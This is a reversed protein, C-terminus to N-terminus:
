LILSLADGDLRYRRGCSPCDFQRGSASELRTHCLCSWGKQGATPGYVLAHASVDHRVVSGTGVFAVSGIHLLQNVSTSPGLWVDDGLRTWGLVVVGATLTCRRGCVVAHAVYVHHDTQTYDGLVTFDGYLGKDVCSTSGVQVGAGLWVGGAHRVVRVSDGSRVTEFGDDGIVANPRIRAGRGVYTNGLLVAGPSIEADDDIYVNEDVSATPHVRASPSRYGVLREFSERNLAREFLKCFAAKPSDESIVIANGDPVADVLDPSTVVVHRTVGALENAYRRSELFTVLGGHPCTPLMSLPGFRLARIGDLGSATMDESALAGVDLGPVRLARPEDAAKLLDQPTVLADLSRSHVPRGGFISLSLHEDLWM